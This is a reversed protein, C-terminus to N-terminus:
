VKAVSIGFYICIVRAMNGKGQEKNKPVVALSKNVRSVNMPRKELFVGVWEYFIETM